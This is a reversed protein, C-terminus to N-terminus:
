VSNKAVALSLSVCCGRVSRLRLKAEEDRLGAAVGVAGAAAGAVGPLLVRLARHVRVGPPARVGHLDVAAGRAVAATTVVAAARPAAAEAITVM